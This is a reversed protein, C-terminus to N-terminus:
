TEVREILAVDRRGGREREGRERRERERRKVLPPNSINKHADIPGRLGL